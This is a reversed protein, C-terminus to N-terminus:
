PTGFKVALKTRTRRRELGTESRDAGTRSTGETTLRATEGSAFNRHAVWENWLPLRCLPVSEKPDAGEDMTVRANPAPMASKRNAPRQFRRLGRRGFPPVPPLPVSVM